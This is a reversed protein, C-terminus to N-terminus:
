RWDLWDFVTTVAPSSRVLFQRALRLRSAGLARRVSLEHRRATTRALLLNAINTCAILLVLGAVAMLIGLPREYRGRWWSPERAVSRLVFPAKFYNQVYRDAPDGPLTAERIQPQVARLAITAAEESQGPKRRVVINLWYASRGDYWSEKGRILPETGLPVVVDFSGGAELGFFGPPTVGVITFPIRDFRLTRGIVDSSGGFQRQWFRYSLVAVPGDRGGGRQDDTENFTRGLIAPVGLVDFSRGSAFIGNIFDPQNGSSLNLETSSWALAGDFLQPRDRIQEWIPNTWPGGEREVLMLRDPDNVPLPRLCLSDLISFIATNAGIGLALSLIAILAFGPSHRLQRLACHTDRALDSFLRFGCADRYEERTQDLGGLSIRAQRVAEETAMGQQMNEESLLELHLQLEDHLREELDRRKFFAGLQSILSKFRTMM